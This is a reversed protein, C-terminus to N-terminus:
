ECLARAVMDQALLADTIKRACFHTNVAFHKRLFRGTATLSECPQWPCCPIPVCLSPVCQATPSAERPLHPLAPCLLLLPEKSPQVAGTYDVLLQGALCPNGDYSSFSAGGRGPCVPSLNQHEPDPIIVPGHIFLLDSIDYGPRTLPSGIM